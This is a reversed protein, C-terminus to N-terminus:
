EDDVEPGNKFSFSQLTREYEALLTTELEIRSKANIPHAIDMFSGDKLKKNPMAILMGKDTKIFKIDRIMFCDDIVISAYAKLKDENVLWIRINSINM